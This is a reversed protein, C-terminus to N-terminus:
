KPQNNILWCSLSVLISTCNESFLWCEQMLFYFLGHSLLRCLAHLKLTFGVAPNTGNTTPSDDFTQTHTHKQAQWTLTAWKWWKQGLDRCWRKRWLYLAAPAKMKVQWCICPGGTPITPCGSGLLTDHWAKMSSIQTSFQSKFGKSGMRM